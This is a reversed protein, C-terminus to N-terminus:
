LMNLIIALFRSNLFKYVEMELILSKYFCYLMLFIFIKM